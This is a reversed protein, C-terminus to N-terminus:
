GTEQRRRAQDSRWLLALSVFTLSLPSGASTYATSFWFSLLVVLSGGIGYATRDHRYRWLAHLFFGFFLATGVFGNSILLLWLQGTSGVTSNGCQACSPTRGIAISSPSGRLARGSGYGLIPSSAAAELSRVALTSRINDSHGNEARAKVMTSLPSLAFVLMAVILGLALAGLVFLRGQMMLRFAVYLFAIVIGLWMARNLSYVTPIAAVVALLAVGWKAGRSGTAWWGVFVWVMLVVLNNGWINTYEFPAKPRASATTGLVDQVQALGPHVMDEVWKSSTMSKPLLMEVPSDFSVDPFLVGAVGGIVTVIGLLGLLRALRRLPMQEETLNGIYLFMVTAASYLIMRQGYGLFGGSDPMTGPAVLGLSAAGAAAWVLFLVWIGFGPPVKIRRKRMLLWAMPVAAAGWIVSTMGLAWWLPYIGFLTYLPWAPLARGPPGAAPEPVSSLPRASTRGERPLDVIMARRGTLAAM